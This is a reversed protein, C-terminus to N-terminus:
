QFYEDFIPKWDEYMKEATNFSEEPGRFNVVLYLEKMEQIFEENNAVEEFKSALYDVIEKPTGPPAYYS